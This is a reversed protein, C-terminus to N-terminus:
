FPMKLEYEPDQLDHCYIAVLAVFLLRVLQQLVKCHKWGAWTCLLLKLCDHFLPKLGPAVAVAFMCVSLGKERDHCHHSQLSGIDPWSSNPQM